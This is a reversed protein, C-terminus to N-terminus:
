CLQHHYANVAAAWSIPLFETTHSHMLLLPLHETSCCNARQSPASTEQNPIIAVGYLERLTKNNVPYWFNKQSQNRKGEM